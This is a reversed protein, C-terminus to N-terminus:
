YIRIVESFWVHGNSKWTSHFKKSLKKSHQLFVINFSTFFCRKCSRCVLFIFNWWFFSWSKWNTQRIFLPPHSFSGRTFISMYIKIYFRGTKVRNTGTKSNKKMDRVKSSTRLDTTLISFGQRLHTIVTEM